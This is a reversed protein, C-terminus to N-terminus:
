YALLSYNSFIVPEVERCLSRAFMLMLVLEVKRIIKQTVSSFYRVLHVSTLLVLGVEM